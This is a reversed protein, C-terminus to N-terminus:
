ATTTTVRDTDTQRDTQNTPMVPSSYHGNTQLVHGGQPGFSPFAAHRRTQKNKSRLNLSFLFLSNLPNFHVITYTVPQATTM